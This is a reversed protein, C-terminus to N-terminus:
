RLPQHYMSYGVPYQQEAGYVSGASQGYSGVRVNPPPAATVYQGGGMAHWRAAAEESPGGSTSIGGGGRPWNHVPNGMAMPHGTGGNIWPQPMPYIGTDYPTSYNDRPIFPIADSTMTGGGGGGRSSNSFRRNDAYSTPPPPIQAGVREPTKAMIPGNQQHHSDNQYRGRWRNHHNDGGLPPYNHNTDPTHLYSSASRTGPGERGRRAISKQIWTTQQNRNVAQPPIGRRACGSSPPPLQGHRMHGHSNSQYNKGGRIGGSRSNRQFSNGLNETIGVSKDPSRDTLKGASKGASKGVSKETSQGTLKEASDDVLKDTSRDTLNDRDAYMEHSATFSLSGPSPTSGLNTAASSPPAATMPSSVGTLAGASSPLKEEADKKENAKRTQEDKHARCLGNLFNWMDPGRGCIILSHKRRSWWLSHINFHHCLDRVLLREQDLWALLGSTADAPIPIQMYQYELEERAKAVRAPDSSYMRLRRVGNEDPFVRIEVKNARAVRVINEGQKGIVLGVLSEHVFFESKDPNAGSIRSEELLKLRRCRREQVASLPESKVDLSNLTVVASNISEASGVMVVHVEKEMAPSDDEDASVIATADAATADNDNLGPTLGDDIITTDNANRKKSSPIRDLKAFLFSSRAWLDDLCMNLLEKEPIATRRQTREFYNRITDIDPVAIKAVHLSTSDSDEPFWDDFNPVAPYIPRAIEPKVKLKFDPSNRRGLTLVKDALSIVLFERWAKNSMSGETGTEDKPASKFLKYFERDSILIEVATGAQFKDSDTMKHYLAFDNSEQFPAESIQDHVHRSMKHQLAVAAKPWRLLNATYKAPSRPESHVEKTQVVIEDDIGDVDIEFLLESWAIKHIQRVKSGSSGVGSEKQTLVNITNGNSAEPPDDTETALITVGKLVAPRYVNHVRDFVEVNSVLPRKLKLSCGVM